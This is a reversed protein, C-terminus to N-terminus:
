ILYNGKLNNYHKLISLVFHFSIKGPDFRIFSCPNIIVIDKWSLLHIKWHHYLLHNVLGFDFHTYLHILFDAGLKIYVSFIEKFSTGKFRFVIISLFVDRHKLDDVSRFYILINPLSFQNVFKIKELTDIQNKEIIKVFYEVLVISILQLM